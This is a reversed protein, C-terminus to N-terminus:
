TPDPTNKEGGRPPPPPAGVRFIRPSVREMIRKIIGGKGAADRGEIIIVIRANTAKVWGQLKVLEVQLKFIENEYDEKRIKAQEIVGSQSNSDKKSKQIKQKKSKKGM